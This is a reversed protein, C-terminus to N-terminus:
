AVAELLSGVIANGYGSYQSSGGLQGFMSSKAQEAFSSFEDEDVSGDQDSDISKFLDQLSMAQSSSTKEEQATLLSASMESSMKSTFAEHESKTVSGDSDTDMKSFLESPDPGKPGNKGGPGKPGASKLEDLTLSGSGDADARSFMENQRERINSFSAMVGSYASISTM